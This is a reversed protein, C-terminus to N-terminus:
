RKGFPLPYDGHFNQAQYLILQLEAREQRHIHVDELRSLSDFYPRLATETDTMSNVRGIILANKGKWESLSHIFPYHHPDASFVVVPLAGGLAYDIKGAEIWNRAVIFAANGDTPSLDGRERLASDLDTWNLSEWTPDGQEFAGPMVQHLWGTAAHSALLTIVLLFVVASGKLWYSVLRGSAVSKEAVARGLLPFALLYGPAQWHFLGQAGWLTIITFLIIPGSALCCLLWAQDQRTRRTFREPGSFIDGALTWVLPLWIWPLLWIAQGAINAAANGPSFGQSVARGGHFLFSVWEHRANWILVPSFVFFAAAVAVYPGPTALLYRAKPSTLLYLCLGALLFVAHYKSLMGLGTLGGFALWLLISQDASRSFLIRILVSVAALMFFMLPGDPLVWGGTSLSFVASLNLTLAAYFGALGGFLRRTLSYMLWTTGAFLLIFPLRLVVPHESGTLFAAVRVLWFHIPPHDFYSLSFWRSVSVVYSEDVGLGLTWALIIRLASGAIILLLVAFLPDFSSRYSITRNM